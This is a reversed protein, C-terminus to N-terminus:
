VLHRLQTPNRGVVVQGVLCHGGVVLHHFGCQTLNLQESDEGEGGLEFVDGDSLYM